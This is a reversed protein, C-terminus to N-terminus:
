EAKEETTEAPATAAVAAATAAAEEATPEAIRSVLVSVVSERANNLITINKYKLDGVKISQGVDIDEVNLELFDPLNKPLGKIKLLRKALKLKGGKKVGIANGTLHVPIQMVIPKDASIQVFDIHIVKDTVPHFQLEKMYTDYVDGEIDLKVLYVNPTYILNKLSLLSTYFNVNKEGGYIICPVNDNKRLIKSAKKGM